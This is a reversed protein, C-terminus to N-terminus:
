VSHRSTDGFAGSGNSCCLSLNNRHMGAKPWKGNFSMVVFGKSSRSNGFLHPERLRLAWVRNHNGTKAIRPKFRRALCRVCRYQADCFSRKM